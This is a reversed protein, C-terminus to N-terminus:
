GGTAECGQCTPGCPHLAVEELCDGPQGSAGAETSRGDKCGDSESGPSPRRAGGRRPLVCGGNGPRTVGRSGAGRVRSTSLVCCGLFDVDKSLPYDWAGLERCVGAPMLEGDRTEARSEKGEGTRRSGMVRARDGFRKQPGGEGEAGRTAGRRGRPGSGSSRLPARM